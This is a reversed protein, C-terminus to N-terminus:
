APKIGADMSFTILSNTCFEHFFSCINCVCKQSSSLTCILGKGFCVLEVTTYGAIQVPKFLSFLCLYLNLHLEILLKEIFNLFWRFIGCSVVALVKTGSIAATSLSFGGKEQGYM